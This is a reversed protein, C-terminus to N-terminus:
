DLSIVISLFSGLLFVVLSYIFDNQNSKRNEIKSYRHHPSKSILLPIPETKYIWKFIFRIIQVFVFALLPLISTIHDKQIIVWLMCIVLWFLSFYINRFKESLPTSIPIWWLAVAIISGIIKIIELHIRNFELYYILIEILLLLSLLVIEYLSLSKLFFGFKINKL